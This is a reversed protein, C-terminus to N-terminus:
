NEGISYSRSREDLSDCSGAPHFPSGVQISIYIFFIFFISFGVREGCKSAFTAAGLPSDFISGFSTRSDSRSSIMM